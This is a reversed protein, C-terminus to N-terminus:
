EGAVHFAGGNQTISEVGRYVGSCARSNLRVEAECGQQRKELTSFDAFGLSVPKKLKYVHDGALFVYSIHTQVLKLGPTPHPYASAKLLGRVHDPLPKAM